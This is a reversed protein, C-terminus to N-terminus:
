ADDPPRDRLFQEFQAALDDGSALSAEARRDYEAELVGVYAQMREDEAVVAGHQGDWLEISEALDVALPVDIVHALHRVLSVIARPHEGNSLYHPVGVRLSVSPVGAAELEAHLV